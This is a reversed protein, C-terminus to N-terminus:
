SFAGPTRPVPIREGGAALSHYAAEVAAVSALADGADTRVPVRTRVSEAFAAVQAGLTAAKDYGAGIVEPAVGPRRLTSVNWGLEIAGSEGVLRLWSGGDSAASWSLDVTGVVGSTCCAIASVTEDVGLHRLRVGEAATVSAIPGGFCRLLDFAHPGNDALVGGGSVVPDAYWGGAVDVIGRFAVHASVLQGIAGDDLLDLARAVDATHRFKAGMALLRDEASAAAVMAHAGELDTALPKECLVDLNGSLLTITVERHSSPPTCVLVADAKGVLAKADEVIGAGHRSALARAAEERLDCVAVLEAGATAAIADAHAAAMRGAGVIAFRVNM